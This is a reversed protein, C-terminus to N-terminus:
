VILIPILLPRRNNEVVLPQNKIKKNLAFPDLKVLEMDFANAYRNGGGKKVIFYLDSYSDRLSKVPDDKPMEIFIQSNFGSITTPSPPIDRFFFM